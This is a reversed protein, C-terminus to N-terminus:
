FKGALSGDGGRAIRLLVYYEHITLAIIILDLISLGLLFLSYSQFYYFMQYLVFLSFVIIATPYAWLKKRFISLVVFLKIVGRAILLIAAFAAAENSIHGHKLFFNAILSHPEESLEDQVYNFVISNIFNPGITLLIIGAAAEVSGDLCKIWIGIYFLDRLHKEKIKLM